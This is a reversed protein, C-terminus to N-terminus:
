NTKTYTPRAQKTVLKVIFVSIHLLLAELISFNDLIHQARSKHFAYALCIYINIEFLTGNEKILLKLKTKIQPM